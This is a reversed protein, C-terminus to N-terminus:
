VVPKVAARCFRAAGKLELKNRRLLGGNRLPRSEGVPASAEPEPHFILDNLDGSAVDDFIARLVLDAAMSDHASGLIALPSDQDGIFALQKLEDRRNVGPA